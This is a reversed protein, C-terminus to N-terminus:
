LKLVARQSKLNTELPGGDDVCGAILFGLVIILSTSSSLVRFLKDCFTPAPLRVPAVQGRFGLGNLERHKVTKRGGVFFSM